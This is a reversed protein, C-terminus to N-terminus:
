CFSTVQQEDDIMTVSGFVLTPIILCAQEMLPLLYDPKTTITNLVIVRLQYTNISQQYPLNKDATIFVDFPYADALVLLDRDKSGRWGMDDVNRVVFGAGIFSRKLKRSLLNEDLLVLMSFKV